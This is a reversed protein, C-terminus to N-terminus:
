GGDIRYETIVGDNDLVLWFSAQFADGTEKNWKCIYSGKPRAIRDLIICIDKGDYYYDYALDFKEDYSSYTLDHGSITSIAEALGFGIPGDLNIVSDFLNQKFEDVNVDVLDTFAMIDGTKTNFTYGYCRNYNPGMTVCYSNMVISLFDQDLYAINAVTTYQFPRATAIEEFDKVCENVWNIMDRNFNNHYQETAGMWAYYEKMLFDNIKKAAKSNGKLQPLDFYVVAQIDGDDNKISHDKRQVDIKANNAAMTVTELPERTGEIVKSTEISQPLQAKDCAAVALLLITIFIIPAIKKTM